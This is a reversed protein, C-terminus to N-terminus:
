LWEPEVLGKAQAGNVFETIPRMTITIAITSVPSTVDPVVNLSRM